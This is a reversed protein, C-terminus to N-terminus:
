EEYDLNLAEMMKNKEDIFKALAERQVKQKEAVNNNLSVMRKVHKQEIWKMRMSQAFIPNMKIERELDEQLALQEELTPEADDQM